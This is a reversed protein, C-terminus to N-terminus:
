FNFFPHQLLQQATPRRASNIQLCQQLIDRLHPNNTSPIVPDQKLRAIHSMKDFNDEVHEFPRYGFVMEFLLVGIFFIFFKIPNKKQLCCFFVFWTGL